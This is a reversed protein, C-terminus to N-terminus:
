PNYCRGPSRRLLAAVDDLVRRARHLWTHSALLRHRAAEGIARRRPEDALLARVATAAGAPTGDFTVIEEGATFLGDLPCREELLAPVACAAAMFSRPTIRYADHAPDSCLESRTPDLVLRAGNIERRLALEDDCQPTTPVDWRTEGRYALIRVRAARAVARLLEHRYATWKGFYLVDCSTGNPTPFLAGPDAALALYGAAVGQRRYVELSGEDQTYFLDFRAAIALSAPLAQPDSQAIGVVVPNGPLLPRLASPVFTAGGVCVVVQPAFRGIGEILGRPLPAPAGAGTPVFEADEAPDFLRTRGLAAFARAAPKLNNGYPALSTIAVVAIRLM